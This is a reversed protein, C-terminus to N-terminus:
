RQEDGAPKHRAHKIVFATLSESRFWGEWLNHGQGEIVEIEIPGGAKRYNDALSASNANLPVVSDQDGHIHFIPVKSQALSSVRSVPNHEALNARLEDVTMEYAPAARELGPYSELNCVPYIGAIAAVNKPHEVAWNYLMLGGRSRALLVPKKSYGRRTTLEQYFKQYTERGVPSGYSEGVDIGAIAIGAKLFREFMWNEEDAPYRDLTPAYWVWSLAGEPRSAAEPEIVFAKHDAVSFREPTFSDVDDQASTATVFVLWALGILSTLRATEVIVREGQSM